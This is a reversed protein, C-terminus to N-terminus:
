RGGLIGGLLGGGAGAQQGSGTGSLRSGPLEESPQVVVFGHGNFSMAYGESATRGFLTGIGLQEAQHFGTTLSASWCVAAEPDAYTPQDVNLVLPTGKCTIAIRGHGTFLCNFLGSASLMGAGQVMHIDWKLTPEFALVNSGNITLGDGPELDLLFVDAAYDALFLDGQGQARMLPIGEGTLHQKLFNGISGSGLGEFNIQGQYAVMAGRRAFVEGNLAVKLMKSNQLSLGSHGPQVEAHSPSFLDSRM